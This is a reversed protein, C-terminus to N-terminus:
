LGIEKNRLLLTIGRKYGGFQIGFLIDFEDAIELKKV